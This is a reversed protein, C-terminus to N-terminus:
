VVPNFITPVLFNIILNYIGVVAINDLLHLITIGEHPMMIVHNM